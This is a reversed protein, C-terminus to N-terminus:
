YYPTDHWRILGDINLDGLDINKENLLNSIKDKVSSFKTNLEQNNFINNFTL